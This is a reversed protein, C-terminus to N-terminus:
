RAGRAREVAAKPDIGLTQAVRSVVQAWLAGDETSTDAQRQAYGLVWDLGSILVM